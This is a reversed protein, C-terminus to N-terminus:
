KRQFEPAGLTLAIVTAPDHASTITRRTTESVEGQVFRVIAGQQAAALDDSGVVQRPDLRVGPIRNAALAVAFNMRNLLAGASVWTDAVDDYGTPPQAGYLPQGLDRVQAALAQTRAVSASSARLASVVFEFPSKVKARRAAPAFFEPSMVIARTVERLDGKSALFVAAVREVLPAPPTDSVFRRALKTAIHRATAPHAALLDLVREGDQRGGGAPLRHGLVVKEGADHLRPEFRFSGGQRPQEITWGTFARAVAVVDAQTYGGDVGLTHLELLERGYNENLGRPRPPTPPQGQGAGVLRARRLPASGNDAASMWNDLYWLMAPSRAVAGLMDRFSGLVHPRIADREYEILYQRTAGKGAFVNFHNFWFDVLVEELQADSDLARLLKQSTLEMLPIRAAAVADRQEPAMRQARERPTMDPPTESAMGPVTQARQLQRRAEVAPLYYRQTIERSDLTLTQFAALRSELAANLGRQPRLQDDIYRQLGMTRVREIDGPRPGFGLRNLVHAITAEDPDRPVGSTPEVADPQVALACICMVAAAMVIRRLTTTRAPQQTM